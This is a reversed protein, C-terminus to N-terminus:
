IKMCLETASKFFFFFFFFFSLLPQSAECKLQVPMKDRTSELRSTSKMCVTNSTRRERHNKATVFGGACDSSFPVKQKLQTVSNYCIPCLSCQSRQMPSEQLADRATQLYFEDAVLHFNGVSALLPQGLLKNKWHLSQRQTCNFSSVVFRLNLLKLVIQNATQM